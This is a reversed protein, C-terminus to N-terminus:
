TRIVASFVRSVRFESSRCCLLREGPYSLGPSATPAARFPKLDLIQGSKTDRVHEGKVAGCPRNVDANCLPCTRDTASGVFGKSQSRRGEEWSEGELASSPKGRQWARTERVWGSVPLIQVGRELVAIGTVIQQYATYARTMEISRPWTSASKTCM